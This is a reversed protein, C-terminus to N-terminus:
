RVIKAFCEGPGILGHHGLCYAREGGDVSVSLCQRLQLQQMHMCDQMLPENLLQSVRSSDAEDAVVLAGLTLMTDTVSAYDQRERGGRAGRSGGDRGALSDWFRAGGFDSANSMPRAEGAGVHLRELMEPTLHASGGLDVHLVSSVLQVSAASHAYDDYRQGAAGARDGDANAASLVLQVAQGSGGLRRAYGPDDRLGQMLAGRDDRMSRQVSAAFSPSQSATLAGYAIWGRAVAAPTDRQVRALAADVAASSNINTDLLTSVDNQYQAYDELADHLRDAQASVPCLLACSAVAAILIRM